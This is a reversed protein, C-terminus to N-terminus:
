NEFGRRRIEEAAAPSRLYGLFQGVEARFHARLPIALYAYNQESLTECEHLSPVQALDARLMIAQEAAGSKVAREIASASQLLLAKKAVQEWRGDQSLLERTAVGIGDSDPDYIALSGGDCQKGALIIPSAALRQPELNLGKSVLRYLAHPDGLIIVDYAAGAEIEVAQDDSNGYVVKVPGQKWGDLLANVARALSTPAALSIDARCIGPLM